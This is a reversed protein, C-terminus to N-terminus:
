KSLNGNLIAMARSLFGAERTGSSVSGRQLKQLQTELYSFGMQKLVEGAVITVVEQTGHINSYTAGRIGARFHNQKLSSGSMDLYRIDGISFILEDIILDPQNKKLKQPEVGPSPPQKENSKQFTNLALLNLGKRSVNMVELERLDIGLAKLRLVGDLLSALDVSIIMLPVNALTGKPFSYPNGIELDRIEIGANKWDMKVERISVGAGLQHRLTFTLAQRIVWSHFIITLISLFFALRLVGSVFKFFGKIM